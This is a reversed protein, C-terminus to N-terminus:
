LIKVKFEKKNFILTYTHGKMLQESDIIQTNNKYLHISNYENIFNTVEMQILDVEKERFKFSNIIHHKIDKKTKILDNIDSYINDLINDRDIEDVITDLEKKSASIKESISNKIDEIFEQLSSITDDRSNFQQIYKAMETPTIFSMDAVLDCITNDIEHGIATIIPTNSKFLGTVIDRDNFIWLDDISGGGRALAIADIPIKKSIISALEINKVLEDKATSGQVSSDIVYINIDLCKNLVSIIDNYAASNYRTILIMNNIRQLTKKPKNFFGNDLCYRKTNEYLDYIDGLGDVEVKYIIFSVENKSKYYNLTGYFKGKIGNEIKTNITNKASKWIISKISHDDEILNFYLHGSTNRFNQIEGSVWFYKNFRDLITKEILCTLNSINYIPKGRFTDESQCEDDDIIYCDAM